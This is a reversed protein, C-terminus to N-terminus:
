KVSVQGYRSLAQANPLEKFQIIQRDKALLFNLIKEKYPGEQVDLSDM